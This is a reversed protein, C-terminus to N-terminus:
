NLGGGGEGGGGGRGACARYPRLLAAGAGHEWRHQARWKQPAVHVTKRIHAWQAHSSLPCPAPAHM